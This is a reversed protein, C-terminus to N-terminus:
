RVCKDQQIESNGKVSPFPFSSVFGCQLTSTPIKNFSSMFTAYFLGKIATIEVAVSTQERRWVAEYGVLLKESSSCKAQRQQNATNKM